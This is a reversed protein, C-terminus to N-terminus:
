KGFRYRVSLEYSRGPLRYYQADGIESEAVADRRDGLNYGDVRVEWQEVRYGLGADVLTYAGARATNRKNLYRPGVWNATLAANLGSAPAYLLGASALHQPSLELLKGKLQTPTDGFLQVYDGFRADHWAYTGKLSLDGALTYRAEFEAGKFREKGANTLGPLGNVSQTVVLNRFDMRFVSLEWEFRGRDHEGKLGVEASNATEPRLIDSEAEPGLDVVAPKFTNRYNAFATIGDEAGGWLRYSTGLAGSLRTQNREDRGSEIVPTSGTLDTVDGERTERTHNVRVGAEVLWADSFAHHLEAYAGTFDRRDSAHTREDTHLGHSDPANSGDPFVAYEFNASRQSGDGYIHDIGWALHTREGLATTLHTDFYAETVDRTQRFGDANPTVGDEAFDERLFGRTDHVNSQSAAFRTSWEGLATDQVYGFSAHVRNEDQRADDPHVNADLPFRSSLVRGERPHPSAPDQRLLTADLDFTFRGAGLAGGLRYLLHARDYGARNAELERKEADFLLSANMGSSDNALPMALAVKASGHSGIGAEIRAPGEGAAYHVVHIVGVFSTAGYSVPAAGKLVEIREVNALDLSALAPVFAGGWPVGDVLLLFADFERLGWLAPVSSAPGGDGGPAIDVGTTLALATRLDYAGRARLEDGSIVAVSAASERLPVPLKSSTIEVTDLTVPDAAMALAPAGTILAVFVARSLATSRFTRLM